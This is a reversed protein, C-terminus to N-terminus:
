PKKPKSQQLKAVAEKFARQDEIHTKLTKYIIALAERMQDAINVCEEDTLDHLGRSYLDFLLGFPNAGGPRLAPPLVKAAIKVKDEFIRGAKATEVKEIQAPDAGHERMAEVLLRLM